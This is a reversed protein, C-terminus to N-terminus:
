APSRRQSSSSASRGTCMPSNALIPSAIAAALVLSTMVWVVQSTEYEVAIKPLAPTFLAFALAAQETLLVLILLVRIWHGTSGGTTGAGVERADDGTSFTVSVHEGANWHPELSSSCPIWRSVCAPLPNGSYPVVLLPGITEVTVDLATPQALM